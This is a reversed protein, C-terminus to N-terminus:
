INRTPLGFFLLACSRNGMPERVRVDFMKLGAEANTARNLALLYAVFCIMRMKNRRFARDVTATIYSFILITYLVFISEVSAFRKHAMM